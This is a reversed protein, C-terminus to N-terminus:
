KRRSKFKFKYKLRTLIDGIIWKWLRKVLRKSKKIDEKYEKIDLLHKKINLNRDDIETEVDYGDLYAKLVDKNSMGIFIESCESKEGFISCEFGCNGSMGNQMCEDGGGNTVWSDYSRQEQKIRPKLEQDIKWEASSLKDEITRKEERCKELQEVAKIYKYKWEEAQGEWYDM